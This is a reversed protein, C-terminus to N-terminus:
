YPFGQYKGEFDRIKLTLIDGRGARLIESCAPWVMKNKHFVKKIIDVFDM